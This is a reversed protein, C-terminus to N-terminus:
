KNSIWTPLKHEMQITWWTGRETENTPGDAEM